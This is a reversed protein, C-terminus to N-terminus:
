GVQAGLSAAILERVAAARNLGKEAAYADVRSLLEGLRVHVAGGVEPRGPGSEEPLEGFYKEVAEDRSNKLLWVKADDDTLFEYTPQRGEWQSWWYKVWRGGKTRYLKEHNDKGATVSIHNNGDWYTDEEFSESTHPNFWGILQPGDYEDQDYVNIRAM